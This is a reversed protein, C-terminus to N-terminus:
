YYITSDNTHNDTSSDGFTIRSGAITSALPEFNSSQNIGNPKEEATTNEPKVGPDYRKIPMHRSIWDRLKHVLM